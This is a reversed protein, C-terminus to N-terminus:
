KEVVTARVVVAVVGVVVVVVAVVVVVVVVGVGVGVGVGVAVVVVVVVVVVEAARRQQRLTCMSKCIHVCTHRITSPHTSPHIASHIFPHVFSHIFPHWHAIKNVDFTNTRHSSTRAYWEATSRKTYLNPSHVLLFLPSLNTQLMTQMGCTTALVSLLLLAIEGGLLCAMSFAEPCQMHSFM